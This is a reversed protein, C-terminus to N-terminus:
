TSGPYVLYNQPERALGLQWPKGTLADVKGTAVRIALPYETGHFLMWLAEAQYMPLMVGGHELWSPPLNHAYDDVHRVPFRRFGPPLPYVRDDDPIRLTRMFSITLGADPHVDPFHFQLVDNKLEIM